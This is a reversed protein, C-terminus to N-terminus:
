RRRIQYYVSLLAIVVRLGVISELKSVIRVKGVHDYRLLWVLQRLRHYFDSYESTKKMIPAFGLLMAYQYAWYELYLELLTENECHERAYQVGSEISYLIAQINKESLSATQSGTRRQIRKYFQGQYISVMDCQIMVRASWEIDECLLGAVFFLDNDLLFRRDYVRAYCASFYQNRYILEQLVSIKDSSDNEPLEVKRVKVLEGDENYISVGFCVIDVARTFVIRHLMELANVDDWMDDSDVFMLYKGVAARIGTNRAESCGGNEKHIVKIRHDSEALRDCLAGSGDTSGDDVLIVEYDSFTQMTISNVCRELEWVTNYVPIVISFLPEM